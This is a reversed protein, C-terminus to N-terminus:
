NAAKGCGNTLWWCSDEYLERVDCYPYDAQNFDPSRMARGLFNTAAAFNGTRYEIVGKSVLGGLRIEQQHRRNFDAVRHMHIRFLMLLLVAGLLLATRATRRSVIATKWVAAMLWVTRRFSGRARVIRRRLDELRRIGGFPCFAPLIALLITPGYVVLKSLPLMAFLSVAIAHIETREDCRGTYDVTQSRYYRTGVKAPRLIADALERCTAWDRLVCRGNEVGVNEPKLDGHLYGRERLRIACDVLFLAVEVAERWSKVVLDEGYSMVFYPLGECEGDDLVEPMRGPLLRLKTNAIERKFARVGKESPDDCVKLAAIRRPDDAHCAKFVRGNGGGPNTREDIIRWKGVPRTIDM